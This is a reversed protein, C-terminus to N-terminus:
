KLGCDKEKCLDDLGCYIVRGCTNCKPEPVNEFAKLLIDLKLGSIKNVAERAKQLSEESPKMIKRQEFTM